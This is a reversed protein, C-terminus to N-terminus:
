PNNKENKKKDQAKIKQIHSKFTIPYSIKPMYMRKSSSIDIKQRFKCLIIRHIPKSTKLLLSMILAYFYPM